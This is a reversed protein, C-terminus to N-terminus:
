VLASKGARQGRRGVQMDLWARVCERLRCARARWSLLVDSSLMEELRGVVGRECVSATESM